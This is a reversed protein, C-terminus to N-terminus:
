KMRRVYSTGPYTLETKDSDAEKTTPNWKRAKLYAKLDDVKDSKVGATFVWKLYDAVMSNTKAKTIMEEYSLDMHAVKPLECITQGWHSLSQIGSPLTSVNWPKESKTKDPLVPTQKKSPPSHGPIMQFEEDDTEEMSHLRRKSADSM